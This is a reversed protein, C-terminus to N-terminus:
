NAKKDIKNALINFLFQILQVLIVLIVITAVMVGYEYRHYGYRIAIDGLGGAGITGTIASYGILTITTISLGRVISPTAEPLMVKYILQWKNCGMAQASEILSQDLELLSTEILRAVFPAAGVVLPVIAATAGISSGVLWRTFPILAVMLILFPISRGINVIWGIATHIWKNPMIGKSDTLVVLIGLPLGIIYAFVVSFTTMYLTEFTAKILLTTYDSNFM